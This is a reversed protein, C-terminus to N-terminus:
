RKGSILKIGTLIKERLHPSLSAETVLDVRRRTADSLRRQLGAFTILSLPTNFRVLIDIDSEATDQGSACSGFLAIMEAGQSRCADIIKDLADQTVMVLYLHHFCCRRAPFEKVLAGVPPQFDGRLKDRDMPLNVCIKKRNSPQVGTRGM